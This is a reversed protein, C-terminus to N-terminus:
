NIIPGHRGSKLLLKVPETKGRVKIFEEEIKLDYFKGEYLYKTGTEDLEEYYADSQDSSFLVTVGFSIYDNRGILLYPLGPMTAGIMYKEHGVGYMLEAQYRVFAM